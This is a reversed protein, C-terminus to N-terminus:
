LFYLCKINCLNLFYWMLESLPTHSVYMLYFVGWIETCELNLLLDMLLRSWTVSIDIKLIRCTPPIKGIVIILCLFREVIHVAVIQFM